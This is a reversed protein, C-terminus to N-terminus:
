FRLQPTRKLVILFYTDHSKDGVGGGGTFSAPLLARAALVSGASQGFVALRVPIPLPLPGRPPGVCRAGRIDHVRTLITKSVLTSARAWWSAWPGAREPNSKTAVPDSTRM